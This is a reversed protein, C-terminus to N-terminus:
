LYPRRYFTDAPSVPGLRRPFIGYESADVIFSL